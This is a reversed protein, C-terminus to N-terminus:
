IYLAMTIYLCAISDQKIRIYLKKKRTVYAAGQHTKLFMFTPKVIILYIIRKSM